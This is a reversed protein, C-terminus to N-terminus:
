SLQHRHLTFSRDPGDNYSIGSNGDRALATLARAVVPVKWDRALAAVPECSTLHAMLETPTLSKEAEEPAWSARVWNILLERFNYAYGQRRSTELVHPDFYSKVGVRSSELVDEPEQWELLWRCFKPLEKELTSEIERNSPWAKAYNRSAFFCLKDATNSNVEPLLAVSGPDDNLTVLLRGQWDVQARDGFKQHYQHSPNVVTDKIKSLVSGREGERPSDADNLCWLFNDFLESNFTTRGTLYEFPDAYGEGLMPAIIRTALLTKGNQKPGCLFLAQGMLRQRELLAVYARKLWALFHELPRNEPAAFHGQLFEWLWPFDDPTAPGEAPRMAQVRTTNLLRQRRITVLGPPYNVLSLAADVRNAQQIMNLLRGCDSVSKGKTVRNDFGRDTLELITDERSRKHWVNSGVLHWYTRGDFYINSTADSLRDERAKRCWEEGLLDEWKVVPKPGTFCLFGDPKLMCGMPNDATSDWFRKGRSGVVFDGEWCGPYKALLAEGVKKLDLDSKTDQRFKKGVEWLIENLTDAPVHDHESYALWADGATWRQYPRFSASDLGPHLEYPNIRDALARWIMEIQAPDCVPVDRDFIWVLRFHGSLTQEVFQPTLDEPVKALAKELHQKILTVDYDLVMGRVGAAPNSPEVYATSVTGRVPSYVLWGHKVMALPRGSKPANAVGHRQGATPRWNWPAVLTAESSRLDRFGFFEM